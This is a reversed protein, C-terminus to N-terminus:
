LKEFLPLAATYQEQRIYVLGLNTSLLKEGPVIALAQRYVRIADAFRLTRSYVVGLNGLAGVNRPEIKLVALFGQEASEYNKAALASVAKQFIAEAPEAGTVAFQVFLSLTLVTRFM